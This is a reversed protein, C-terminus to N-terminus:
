LTHLQLMLILYSLILYAKNLTPMDYYCFFMLKLFSKVSMLITHAIVHLYIHVSWHKVDTEFISYIVIIINMIVRDINTECMKARAM